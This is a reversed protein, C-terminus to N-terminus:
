WASPARVLLQLVKRTDRVIDEQDDARGLENLPMRVMMRVSHRMPRMRPLTGNYYLHWLAQELQNLFRILKELDRLSTKAFMASLAVADVIEDHALHKNRIDRYQSVYIARYKKVLRSVRKFDSNALVPADEVFGQLIEEALNSIRRKRAVLASKSFAGAQKADWAAKLLTDINYPSTQDFVKGVCILAHRELGGRVTIWFGPTRQIMRNTRLDKSVENIAAACFWLRTAEAKQRRFIGLREDFDAEKNTM